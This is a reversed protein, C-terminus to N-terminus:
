RGTSAVLAGILRDRLSDFSAVLSKPIPDGGVNRLAVRPNRQVGHVLFEFHLHPGTALGTMGVYGITQGIDVHAGAHIGSAFGRLHGYRSSFGNAHRIEILNGYGSAVGARVVVGAGIARVPTGSNAAYDIGKHDRWLKLIPHFRNGFGSSIYKFQLPARLFAAKLSRGDQDFYDGAVQDDTFHVADIESGSLKLQAAVIAGIKVIGNSLVRREALVRFSDGDQLDRSMDVRYEYVDDALKVVLANQADRPLASDAAAYMAQYLNTHITGQVAITDTKWPLREDRDVWGTSDRTLHLYHDNALEVVVEVPQSDTPAAHLVAVPLGVPVRRPDLEAAAARVVSGAATDSLGGRVLTNVLTEGRAVSDYSLKWSPTPLTDRAVVQGGASAVPTTARIAVFALLAVVLYTITRAGRVTM